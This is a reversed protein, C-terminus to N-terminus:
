ATIEIAKEWLTDFFSEVKKKMQKSHSAIFAITERRGIDKMSQSLSWIGKDTIIWRDHMEERKAKRLSFTPKEVQLNKVSRALRREKEGGGTLSCLFRIEVGNKVDLLPDLSRDNVWPDLIKVYRGAGALMARLVKQASFPKGPQLLIEKLETVPLESNFILDERAIKGLELLAHRIRTELKIYNTFRNFRRVLLQSNGSFRLNRRKISVRALFDEVEKQWEDFAIRISTEENQLKQFEQAIRYAKTLKRALPGIDEVILDAIWGWARSELEIETKVKSELRQISDKLAYLRNQISQGKLILMPLEIKPSIELIM